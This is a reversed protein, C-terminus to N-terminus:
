LCWLIVNPREAKERLSAPSLPVFRLKLGAGVLGCKSRVRWGWAGLFENGMCTVSRKAWSYSSAHISSKHAPQLGSLREMCWKILFGSWLGWLGTSCIVCEGCFRCGSILPPFSSFCCAPDHQRRGAHRGKLVSGEVSPECRWLRQFYHYHTQKGQGGAGKYIMIRYVKGVTHPDGKQIWAQSPPYKKDLCYLWMPTSSGPKLVQQLHAGRHRQQPLLEM